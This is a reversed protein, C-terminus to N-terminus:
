RASASRRGAGGRWRRSRCAARSTPCRTSSTATFQDGAILADLFAEYGDRTSRRTSTTTATARATARSPMCGTTTSRIPPWSRRSPMTSRSRRAASGRPSAGRGAGTRPSRVPRSSGRRRFSRSRRACWASEPIAPSGRRHSRRRLVARSGRRAGRGGPVRAQTPAHRAAPQRPERARGQAPRAREHTRHVQLLQQLRARGPPRDPAGRDSGGSADRM